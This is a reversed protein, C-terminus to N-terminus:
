GQSAGVSLLHVWRSRNRNDSTFLLLFSLPSLAGTKKNKMQSAWCFLAVLTQTQSALKKLVLVGWFKVWASSLLLHNYNTATHFSVENLVQELLATACQLRTSWVAAIITNLPDRRKLPFLCSKIEPMSRAASIFLWCRPTIQVLPKPQGSLVRRFWTEQATRM